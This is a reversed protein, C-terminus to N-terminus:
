EGEYSLSLTALQSKRMVFLSADTPKFDKHERSDALMSGQIMAHQTQLQTLERNKQDILAITKHLHLGNVIIFVYMFIYVIFTLFLAIEMSRVLKKQGESQRIVLKM